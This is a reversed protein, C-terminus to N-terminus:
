PQGHLPGDRLRKLRWTGETIDIAPVCTLPWECANLLSLNRWTNLITVTLLLLQWLRTIDTKGIISKLLGKLLENLIEDLPGDPLRKL